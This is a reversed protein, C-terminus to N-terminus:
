SRVSLKHITTGIIEGDQVLNSSKGDVIMVEKLEGQLSKLAAEVKPIMGGYITGDEILENVEKITLEKLLSGEKLIGPVDTVFLLSEAEMGVAVAGAASDANINFKDGNDGVGIPSIIPVFNQQLLANLLESNVKKVDGVYGLNQSDRPLAQLLKGDVGSIGVAKLGAQQAKSVLWKNVKGSLVMEVVELVEGTTKRLGNVFESEVQLADLIKKIEPGGGHVIIPSKGLKKLEVLSQFFEDSLQELTSGGCKIVVIGSM